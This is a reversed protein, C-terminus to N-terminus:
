FVFFRGGQQQGDGVGAASLGELLGALRKEYRRVGDDGAYGAATVIAVNVGRKLLTSLLVVMRSDKPFEGGDDYLTMDGDFTILKLTRAIARVQATNLIHRIDNFSPTVHRRSSISRLENQYLFAARLELPTFFIGVSPVLQSLRSLEPSGRVTYARHEDILQEMLSFIEAYRELIDRTKPQPSYSRKRGAKNVAIAAVAAKLLGKVFDILGDRRHAKLAYTVEYRSSM